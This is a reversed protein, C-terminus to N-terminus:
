DTTTYPNGQTNDLSQGLIELIKFFDNQKKDELISFDEKPLFNVDGSHKAAEFAGTPTSYVSALLEEKSIDKTAEFFKDAGDETFDLDATDSISKLLGM